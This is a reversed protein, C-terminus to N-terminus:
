LLRTGACCCCCPLLAPPSKPPGKGTVDRSSPPGTGAAAAGGTAPPFGKKNSMDEWAISLYSYLLYQLLYCPPSTTTCTTPLHRRLPQLVLASSCRLSPPSPSGPFLAATGASVPSKPLVAWIPNGASSLDTLTSNGSDHRPAPPGTLQVQVKPTRGQPPEPPCRRSQKRATPTSEPACCRGLETM